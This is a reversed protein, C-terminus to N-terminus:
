ARATLSLVSGPKLAVEGVPEGDLAIEVKLGPPPPGEAQLKFHRMTAERMMQNNDLSQTGWVPQVSWAYCYDFIPNPILRRWDAFMEDMQKETPTLYIGREDGGFTQMVPSTKAIPIGDRVGAAVYREILTPDYGGPFRSRVAYGSMGCLDCGMSEINYPDFRPRSVDDQNSVKVYMVADPFHERLYNVQAKISAPPIGYPEDVIYFGWVRPVGKWRDVRDRFEKDVGNKLGIYVLGEIGSPMNNLKTISSTDLLDFGMAQPPWHGNVADPVQSTYHRVM